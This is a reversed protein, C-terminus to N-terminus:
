TDLSKNLEYQEFTKPQELFSKNGFNNSLLEHDDVQADIISSVKFDNFAVQSSNDSM